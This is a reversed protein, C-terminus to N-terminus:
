IKRERKLSDIRNNSDKFIIDNYNPACKCLLLSLIIMVISGIWLLAFGALANRM